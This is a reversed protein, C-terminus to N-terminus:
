PGIRSTSGMWYIPPSVPSQVVVGAVTPSGALEGSPRKAGITIVETTGQVSPPQQVVDTPTVVIVTVLCNPAPGLGYAM